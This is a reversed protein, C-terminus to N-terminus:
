TLINTYPCFRHPGCSISYYLLFTHVSVNGVGDDIDTGVIVVDVQELTLVDNRVAHGVVRIRDDIILDRDHIGDILSLGILPQLVDLQRQPAHARIVQHHLVHFRVVGRRDLGEHLFIGLGGHDAVALSELHDSLVERVDLDALGDFHSVAVHQIQALMLQVKHERGHNVPRLDHHGVLGRLLDQEGRVSEALEARQVHVFVPGALRSSIVEADDAFVACLHLRNQLLGRGQLDLLDQRQVSRHQLLIQSVVDVQIVDPGAIQRLGVADEDGVGGDVSVCLSGRFHQRCLQFGPTHRVHLDSVQGSLVPRLCHLVREAVVLQDQRGGCVICLDEGEHTLEDIVQRLPVELLSGHGEDFVAGPCGRRGLHHLTHELSALVNGKRLVVHRDQGRQVFLAGRLQHRQRVLQRGIVDLRLGVFLLLLDIRGRQELDAVTHVDDCGVVAFLVVAHDAVRHRLDGVVRGAQDDADVFGVVGAIDNRPATLHVDAGQVLLRGELHELLEPELGSPIHILERVEIM